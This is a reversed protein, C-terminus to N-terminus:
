GARRRATVLWELGRRREPSAAPPGAELIDFHPSLVTEINARSVPFPPGDSGEKLPYFCALLIGGPTLIDRLIQAYEVRREPDIACFCTYEWVADFAAAFDAGLGFVDRQEFAVRVGEDAALRCAERVAAESFDFATVEYGRGALFRADHGRGAGPVAVRAGPPLPLGTALCAVLASAPEGLEWGDQSSAYLGDWFAATSVPARDGAV